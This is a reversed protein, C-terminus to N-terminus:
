SVQPVSRVHHNNYIRCAYAYLSTLLNLLPWKHFITQFTSYTIINFHLKNFYYFCLISQIVRSLTYNLRDYKHRRDHFLPQM